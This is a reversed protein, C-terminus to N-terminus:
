EATTAANSAAPASALATVEFPVVGNIIAAAAPSLLDVRLYATGIANAEDAILARRSDFRVAAGSFTFAVLLGFLAFIAGEAAGFGSADGSRAVRRLGFRRGIELCLLMGVFLSAAYELAFIAPDM